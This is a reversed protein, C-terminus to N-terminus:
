HIGAPLVSLHTTWRSGTASGITQVTTKQGAIANLPASFLGGNVSGPGSSIQWAASPDNTYWDVMYMQLSEGPLVGTRQQTDVEVHPTTSDPTIVLGNLVPISHGYSNTTARIAVLLTTDTVKAPIYAISPTRCQHQNPIGFDFNHAAVQKQGQLMLPGIMLGNDFTNTPDYTGTCQGLATMIAVKYNGNPVHFRYVVDDGWTYKYTEWVNVGPISGWLSSYDNVDNYSGSEFGLDPLWNNGSEDVGGTSSGSDIRIVGSPIITLAVSTFSTHDANSTGTITAKTIGAVGPPATYFEAPM